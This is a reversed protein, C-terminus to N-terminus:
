MFVLIVKTLLSNDHILEPYRFPAVVSVFEYNGGINDLIIITTRSAISYKNRIAFCIKGSEEYVHMESYVDPYLTNIQKGFEKFISQFPIPAKANTKGFFNVM